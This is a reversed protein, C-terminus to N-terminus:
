AILDPAILTLTSDTANNDILSFAREIILDARQHIMKVPFRLVRGLPDYDFCAISCEAIDEEPITALYRVVGEFVPISNIFLGAPLKGLRRHLDAIEREASSAEYGCTLISGNPVDVANELLAARFGDIRLDTAFSEKDGGIFLIDKRLSLPVEAVIELALSRAGAFNDTVVSPASECPHDVFVHPLRRRRCMEALQEPESAGAIIALEVSYSLLSELSEMQSVSDRGSFVIAPCKKRARAELAFAQSLEGFFRNEHEPLILGSLGSKASRLGRAQLNTSYGLALAADQVKKVTKQSIRRNEWGGNLVVSVTTSSAGVAEAIDYITPKKIESM